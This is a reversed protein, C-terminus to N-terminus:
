NNAQQALLPQPNKVYGTPRLSPLNMVLADELSHLPAIRLFRAVGHLSVKNLHSLITLNGGPASAAPLSRVLSSCARSEPPRIAFTPNTPRPTMPLWITFRRSSLPCLTM